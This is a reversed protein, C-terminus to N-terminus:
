GGAEQALWALALAKRAEAWHWVCPPEDPRKLHPESESCLKHARRQIAAEFAPNPQTITPSPITV